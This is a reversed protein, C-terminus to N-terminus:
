ASRAWGDIEAQDNFQAPGSICASHTIRPRLIVAVSTL